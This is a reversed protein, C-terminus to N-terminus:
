PNTVFDTSSTTPREAAGDGSADTAKSESMSAVRQLNPENSFDSPVKDNGVNGAQGHTTGSDAESFAEGCSGRVPKAVNSSGQTLNMVRDMAFDTARGFASLAKLKAAGDDFYATFIDAETANEPWLKSSFDICLARSHLNM